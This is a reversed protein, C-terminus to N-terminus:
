KKTKYLTACVDRGDNSYWAITFKYSKLCQKEAIITEYQLLKRGEPLLICLPAFCDLEDLRCDMAGCFVGWGTLGLRYSYLLFM